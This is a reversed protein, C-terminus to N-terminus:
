LLKMLTYDVNSYLETIKLTYLKTLINLTTCGDDGFSIKYEHATVGRKGMGRSRPM